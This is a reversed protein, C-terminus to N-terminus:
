LSKNDVSMRNIIFFVEFAYILIFSVQMNATLRLIEKERNAMLLIIGWHKPISLEFLKFAAECFHILDM